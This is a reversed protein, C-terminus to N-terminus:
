GRQLIRPAPKLYSPAQGTGPGRGAARPAASQAWAQCPDLVTANQQVMGDPSTGVFVNWGAANAPASGPQVTFGSSEGLQITTAAASAGEGGSPNVWAMTVYYTGEALVGAAEALGPAAAQAVPNAVIGIGTQMLKEVAWKALDHYQDRKGSYRDNLQNNFADRYVLELTRFTHWLQLMPTVTVSSVSPGYGPVTPLDYSMSKTLLTTLEMGLEDRALAMKRTVDIGEAAAVDLVTADQATLDELTSITSDTFLAM